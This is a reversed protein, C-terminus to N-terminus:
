VEEVIGFLKMREDFDFKWCTNNPILHRHQIWGTFAGSCMAGNRNMHTVGDEWTDPHLKNIGLVYCTQKVPTAQHETPSAHVVDTNVLKDFVSDAKELSEDTNRYSTQACCSASIRKAEDLSYEVYHTERLSDVYMINGLNDRTTIVYPLHWEGSVLKMPISAEIAKYIKYALMLIEPQATPHIRLNFFNNWNTGTLLQKVMQFPELLRGAIQKHVENDDLLGVTQISLRKSARWLSKATNVTEIEETAAMGAKKKGWYVPEFGNLEIQEIAKQLTIARTSSCNKMLDHHTNMEALIIRPAEVEVTTIRHGLPSISDAVVRAKINTEREFFKYDLM